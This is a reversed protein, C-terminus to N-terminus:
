SSMLGHGPGPSGSGSVRRTSGYGHGVRAVAQDGAHFFRAQLVNSTCDETDNLQSSHAGGQRAQHKLPHPLVHCAFYDLLEINEDDEIEQQTDSYDKSPAYDNKLSRFALHHPKYTASKNVQPLLNFVLSWFNKASSAVSIIERKELRETCKKHYQLVVSTNESRSTCGERGGETVMSSSGAGAAVVVCGSAWQVQISLIHNDLRTGQCFVNWLTLILFHSPVAATVSGVIVVMTSVVYPIAFHASVMYIAFTIMLLKVFSYTLAVMASTVALLIVLSALVGIIGLCVVSRWRCISMRLRDLFLTYGLFLTQLDSVTAAPPSFCDSKKSQGQEVNDPVFRYSEYINQKGWGGMGETRCAKSNYCTVWDIHMWNLIIVLADAAMHTINAEDKSDVAQDQEGATIVALDKAKYIDLKPWWAVPGFCFRLQLFFLMSLSTLVWERTGHSTHFIGIRFGNVLLMFISLQTVSNADLFSDVNIVMKSSRPTSILWLALMLQIFRPSSSADRVLERQHGNAYSAMSSWSTTGMLKICTVESDPGAQSRKKWGNAKPIGLTVVMSGEREVM